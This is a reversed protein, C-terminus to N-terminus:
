LSRLIANKLKQDVSILGGPKQIAKILPEKKLRRLIQQRQLPFLNITMTKM